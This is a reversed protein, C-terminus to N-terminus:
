VKKTCLREVRTNAQMIIALLMTRSLSPKLVSLMLHAEEGKKKALDNVYKFANTEFCFELLSRMDSNGINKKKVIKEIRIRKNNSSKAAYLLPLPVSEYKIRHPLDGKVNLCDEVEDALRSLFGLRRGFDSLAEIENPKGNGMMAGIRSCAEIEAVEKWLVNEYFKIDTDLKQRCQTEMFEAECIEVSLNGYVELVDAIKIPNCTKRILEHALTWAKVILLDGVLLATDVGHLGLITMRLHKSKSRDLIDDHIGFGSSALTFILAADQSIEYTGGVAECSFFTLSPRNFDRWYKQVDELASLLKPEKVGLVIMQGFKELIKECRERILDNVEKFALEKDEVIDM